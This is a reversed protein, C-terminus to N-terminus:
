QGIQIRERCHCGTGEEGCVRGGPGAVAPGEEGLGSAKDSDNEGEGVELVLTWYITGSPCCLSATM